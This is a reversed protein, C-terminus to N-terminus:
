LPLAFSEKDDEYDSLQFALASIKPDKRNKEENGKNRNEV